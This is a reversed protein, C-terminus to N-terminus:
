NGNKQRSWIIEGADAELIVNVDREDRSASVIDFANKVVINVDFIVIIIGGTARM